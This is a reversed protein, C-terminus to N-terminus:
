EAAECGDPICTTRDEPKFPGDVFSDKGSWANIGTARKDGLCSPMSIEPRYIVFGTGKVTASQRMGFLHSSGKDGVSYVGHGDGCAIIEAQSGALNFQHCAAPYSGQIIPQFICLEELFLNMSGNFRRFICSCVYHHMDIHGSSNLSSDMCTYFADLVAM